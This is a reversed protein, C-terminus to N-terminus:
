LALAEECLSALRETLSMSLSAELFLIPQRHRFYVVHVEAVAVVGVRMDHEAFSRLIHHLHRLFNQVVVVGERV